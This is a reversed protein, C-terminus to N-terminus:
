FDFTFIDQKKRSKKTKPIYNMDLYNQRKQKKNYRQPNTLNDVLKFTLGLAGLTIGLNLATNITSNASNFNSM